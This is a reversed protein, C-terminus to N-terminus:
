ARGGRTRKPPAAPKPQVAPPPPKPLEARLQAEVADMRALAQKTAFVKIDNPYEKLLRRYYARAVGFDGVEFEAITAINWYAWGFENFPNSPDIEQCQLSRIEAAMRQEPRKLTTYGVAMLSWAPQLFEKQGPQSVFRSLCAVAYRTEPEKLTAIFTAMKYIFAEKAALHGPHADIIDQYGKRVAAMDPEKDVPVLHNMRALALRCWVALEGAPEEAIIQRYLEAARKKDQQPEPTRLNLCTALGYRAQNRVQADAAAGAQLFFKQARDFESLRYCDWGAALAAPPDMPVTSQDQRCAASLLLCAAFIIRRFNM